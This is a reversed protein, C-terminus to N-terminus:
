KEWISRMPYVNLEHITAERGGVSLEIADIPEGAGKRGSTKYVAGEGGCVEYMPRDTIVRFRLRGDDLKLPMEDLKGGAVDYRVQNGGFRLIVERADGPEVDVVIDYLQGDTEFRIPQEPSVTKADTTLPEQRLVELEKIPRAFMRIGDATDNLTLRTPLSFAQNFPM